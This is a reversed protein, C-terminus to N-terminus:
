KNFFSFFRNVWHREHYEKEAKKYKEILRQLLDLIFLADKIKSIWKDKDGDWTIKLYLNQKLRERILPHFEYNNWDKIWPYTEILGNIYSILKQKLVNSLNAEIVTRAIWSKADNIHSEIWDKWLIVHLKRIEEILWHDIDRENRNRNRNRKSKLDAKWISTSLDNIIPKVSVNSTFDIIRKGVVENIVTTILWNVIICWPITNLMDLIKMVKSKIENLQEETIENRSFVNSLCEDVYKEPDIGQKKKESM